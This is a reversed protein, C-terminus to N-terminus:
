CDGGAERGYRAGRVREGGTGLRTGSRGDNDECANVPDLSLSCLGRPEPRREGAPSHVVCGLRAVVSRTGHLTM